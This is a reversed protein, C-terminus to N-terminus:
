KEDSEFAAAADKAASSVEVIVSILRKRRHEIKEATIKIGSVEVWEGAKALRGLQKVLLGGVSTVEEDEDELELELKESLDLLSFGADVRYRNASLEVFDSQDDDYEDSIEGVIEEILDELTVLGAVGGYEDIVIAMHISNSQMKKLLEDVGVSEPVFVAARAVSAINQKKSGKAFALKAIDKLYLVGVVDDANKGSVPMRSYGEDLFVQMAEDITCDEDITVMDIRPIMVERAITETFDEAADIIEQEFEELAETKPGSIPTFLLNVRRIVPNLVRLMFEGLKSHGARKAILQTMFIMLLTIGLAVLVNVWWAWERITLLQGIVLGFVANLVTRVFAWDGALEAKGERQLAAQLITVPIALSAIVVAIFIALGSM